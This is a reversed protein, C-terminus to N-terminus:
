SRLTITYLVVRDGPQLPEVDSVVGDSEFLVDQPGLLFAEASHMMLQDGKVPVVGDAVRVLAARDMVYTGDESRRRSVTEVVRVRHYSSPVRTPEFGTGGSEGVRRLVATKGFSDILRDATAVSRAYDFGM